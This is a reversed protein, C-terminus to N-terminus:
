PDVDSAEQEQMKQIGPIVPFIVSERPDVYGFFDEDPYNEGGGAFQMGSERMDMVM